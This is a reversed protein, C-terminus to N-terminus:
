GATDEGRLSALLSSWDSGPFTLYGLDRNQTDRVHVRSGTEAVEVCTPGNGSYSSKHWNLSGQPTMM